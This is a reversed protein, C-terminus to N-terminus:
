TQETACMICMILTTIFCVPYQLHFVLKQALPAYSCIINIEGQQM